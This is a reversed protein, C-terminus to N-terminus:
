ARPTQCWGSSASSATDSKRITSRAPGPSLQSMTWISDGLMMGATGDVAPQDGAAGGRDPDDRVAGPQAPGRGAGALRGARWGGARGAIVARGRRGAPAAARVAVSVL